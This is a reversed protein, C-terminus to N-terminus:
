SRGGFTLARPIEKGCFLRWFSAVYALLVSLAYLLVVGCFTLFPFSWLNWTTFESAASLIFFALLGYVLPKYRRM